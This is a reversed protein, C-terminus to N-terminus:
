RTTSWFPTGRRQAALAVLFLAALRRLLRRPFWPHAFFSFFSGAFTAMSKSPMSWRMQGQRHRRRVIGVELGPRGSLDEVQLPGAAALLRRGARTAARFRKSRALRLFSVCGRRRRCSGGRRLSPLFASTKTGAPFSTSRRPSPVAGAASLPLSFISAMSTRTSGRALPRLDEVLRPPDVAIIEVIRAHVAGVPRGHSVFYAAKRGCRAM